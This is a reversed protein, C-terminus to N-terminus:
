GTMQFDLLSDLFAPDVLNWLRTQDEFDGMDLDFQGNWTPSVALDTGNNRILLAQPFDSDTSSTANQHDLSLLSNTVTSSARASQRHVLVAETIDLVERIVAACRAAVPNSQMAELIQLGRQADKLLGGDGLGHTGSLVAYLLVMTAYLVYTSNYWWTRFWPRMLFADYLTAITSQSAEICSETHSPNVQHESSPTLYILFPRHLLIRANLYRLNCVLKQKTRWESENLSSSSTGWSKDLDSKWQWLRQDIALCEHSKRALSISADISYVKRCIDNLLAAFPVMYSIFSEPPSGNTSPMSVVYSCPEALASARGASMSMEIEVAYLAWWLRSAASEGSGTTTPIGMAFASRVAMGTYMYCSHPKLANQCYVSMLLLTLTGNLSCIEFIDGLRSKARVFYKAALARAQSLRDSMNNTTVAGSRTILFNFLQDDEAATIAGLAVVTDYLPGFTRDPVTRVRPEPENSSWIMDECHQWFDARDLVPHIYHLNQFYLRLCEKELAVNSAAPVVLDCNGFASDTHRHDPSHMYSVLEEFQSDSEASPQIRTSPRIGAQRAKSRLRSLFTLIGSPGYFEQGMTHVNVKRLGEGDDVGDALDPSAAETLPISDQTASRNLSLGPPDGAVPAEPPASGPGPDYPAQAVTRDQSHRNSM